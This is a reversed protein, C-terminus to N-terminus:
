TKKSLFFQTKINGFLEIVDFQLFTVFQLTCRFVEYRKAPLSSLSTMGTLMM